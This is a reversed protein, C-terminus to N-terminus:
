RRRVIVEVVVACLLISVWAGGATPSILMPTVTLLLVDFGRLVSGYLNTPVGGAPTSVLPRSYDPPRAAIWRVGSALGVAGVAPGVLVVDSWGMGAAHLVPMVALGFVLQVCAPVVLAAHLVERTRFPLTRVLSPTLTWSRLSGVLPVGAVFGVFAAVLVDVTGAGARRAAVPVAVGALLVAVPRPSRRLRTLDRWWVAALGSPGGRRSRVFGRARTVHVQVVDYALAPDLSALAGSMAPVLRGGPTVARAPLRDLRRVALLSVTGALLVAVTLLAWQAPDLRRVPGSMLPRGDGTAVLALWTVVALMWAVRATISPRAAEALTAGAVAVVGAAAAAVVLVAAPVVAMGGLMASAVTPVAVMVVAASTVTLFRSRLLRGRDVPTPLLWSGVAPTVFVPGLVRAIALVAVVALAAVLWPLMARAGVCGAATCAADSERSLHVLVSGVESGVVLASFVWVYADEVVQSLPATARARRWARVDRLLEGVTGPGTTVQLTV